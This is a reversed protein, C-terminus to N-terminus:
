KTFVGLKARTPGKVKVSMRRSRRKSVSSRFARDKDDDNDDDNDDDDQDDDSDHRSKGKKKKKKEGDEKDEDVDEDDSDYEDDSDPYGGEEKAAAILEKTLQMLVGRPKLGRTKGDRMRLLLLSFIEIAQWKEIKTYEEKPPVQHIFVLVLYILPLAVLVITPVALSTNGTAIGVANLFADSESQYCEFYNQTLQVPPEEVM